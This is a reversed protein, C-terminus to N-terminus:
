IGSGGSTYPGSNQGNVTSPSTSSAVDRVCRIVFNDGNKSTTIVHASADLYYQTEVVTSDYKRTYYTRAAPNNGATFESGIYKIMLGFEKENPIRWMHLDSKDAEEHYYDHCWNGSRVEAKTFITKATTGPTTTGATYSVTVTAANITGNDNAMIQLASSSTIRSSLTEEVIVNEGQKVTVKNGNYQVTLDTPRAGEDTTTLLVINEQANSGNTDLRLYYKYTTKKGGGNTSVTAYYYFNLQSGDATWTQVNEGISFVHAPSDSTGPNNLTITATLNQITGLTEVAGATHNTVTTTHDEGPTDEGARLNTRAIQFAEPLIDPSASREHELYELTVSGGARTAESGLGSIDVIRTESDFTSCETSPQNYSVLSRVCRVGLKAQLWTNAGAIYGYSVGEDTYWARENGYTSTWYAQYDSNFQASTKLVPYGYWITQCQNVAPLYWKIENGDIKGNGNEDRNRSLCQLVAYNASMANQAINSTNDLHGLKSVDIYQSWTATGLSALDTGNFNGTFNAWGNNADNQNAAAGFEAYQGNSSLHVAEPFEEIAELGFPNPLMSGDSLDYMTIIPRQTISFIPTVAYSSHGDKSVAIGAALTLERDAANVFESPKAAAGSIPNQTYFYESVYAQTYFYGNELIFHVPTGAKFEAILGYIDVTNAEGPYSIFQTGSAPAGFRIWSIDKPRNTEEDQISDFDVNEYPTISRLTFGILQLPNGTGDDNAIKVMVNEYHSDLRINTTSTSVTYLSGEAGPNAEVYGDGTYEAEAIISSVGTINVHYRYKANRRVTFNDFSGQNTGSTSFNGLHITYSVVGSINKGSIENGEADKAPGNYRGTIVVYTGEDPANKFTQDTESIHSERDKQASSSAKATQVNEMMYFQFDAFRTGSFSSGSVHIDQEQIDTITKSGEAAMSSGPFTGNVNDETGGANTWGSREFLTSSKSYNHISYSLPEFTIGSATSISFIVKATIRRLHIRSNEGLGSFDNVITDPDEDPQLSISGDGRGFLGTLLLSNEVMDLLNNNKNVVLAKLEDLSKTKLSSLSVTGFNSSGYNAIAYLYYDGSYLNEDQCTVTYIYNTNSQHVPTGLDSRDLEIVAAPASTSGKKYFFLALESIATEQEDTAKTVVLDEPAPVMITMKFKTQAGEVTPEKINEKNCSVLAFIASVVAVLIHIRIRKMIMM